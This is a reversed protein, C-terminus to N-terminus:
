LGTGDGNLFKVSRQWSLGKAWPVPVRVEVSLSRWTVPLPASAKPKRACPITSRTLPPLARTSASLSRRIAGSPVTVSISTLLTRSIGCHLFCGAPPPKIFRNYPADTKSPPTQLQPLPSILLYRGLTRRIDGFATLRNALHPSIRLLVGPSNTMTTQAVPHRAPSETVPGWSLSAARQGPVTESGTRVVAAGVVLAVDECDACNAASTTKTESGGPVTEPSPTALIRLRCVPDVTAAGIVAPPKSGTAMAAWAPSVRAMWTAM